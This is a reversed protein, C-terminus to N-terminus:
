CISRRCHLKGDVARVMVNAPFIMNGAPGSQCFRRASFGPPSLGDSKYWFQGHLLDAYLDSDVRAAVVNGYTGYNFITFPSLNVARKTYGHNPYTVSPVGQASAARESCVFVTDGTALVVQDSRPLASCPGTCASSKLGLTSGYRGRPCPECPPSGTGDKSYTGVGCLPYITASFSVSRDIFRITIGANETV